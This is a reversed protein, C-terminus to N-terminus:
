ELGRFLLSRINTGDKDEVSKKVVKKFYKNCIGKKLVDM